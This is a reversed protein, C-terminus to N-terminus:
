AFSNEINLRYSRLVAKSKDTVWNQEPRGNVDELNHNDNPPDVQEVSKVSGPEKVQDVHEVVDESEEEEDDITHWSDKKERQEIAVAIEARRKERFEKWYAEDADLMKVLADVMTKRLEPSLSKGFVDPDWGVSSHARASGECAALRGLETWVLGLFRDITKRLEMLIMGAQDAIFSPLDDSASIRLRLWDNLKLIHEKPSELTLSRSFLMAMLPTVMSTHELWITGEDAETPIQKWMYAVLRGPSRYKRRLRGERRKGVDNVSHRSIMGFELRSDTSWHTKRGKPADEGRWAALETSVTNMLLAKVLVMNNGNSNLFEPLDDFLTNGPQPAPAFGIQALIEHIHTSTVMMDLYSRHRICKTEQLKRMLSFDGAQYAAHYERFAEILPVFDSESDSSYKQRIEKIQQASLEPDHILPAHQPHCAVILMPEICGFFSGLLVAKGLAPHIGFQSLLRGLGTIERSETLAGLSQLSKIASQVAESSPPDITELLFEEVDVHQPYAKLQLAVEVLDAVKIKPRNMPTFSEHRAKSFLAYYHGNRVRGARGRRQISSTKSIWAFPLSRTLTSPDFLSNRAKGADVVYVVEPLTISTEAINTALIIRCCGWPVEKFVNDNTDRRQSHLQFLKFRKGDKFDLGKSAFRGDTLLECVADIDAIGPLFVLIDGKPRSHAIHAIVAATLGVYQGSESSSDNTPVSSSLLRHTLTTAPISAASGAHKGAFEMENQIYRTSSIIKDKGQLLPQLTPYLESAQSMESLIEPLYHTEVNAGSGEVEFSEARLATGEGKPEKFYDLFRTPDISASMLIIKPFTLGAAKRTRVATRLISLVLDIQVDREHVEDVIIHSHAQLTTHQDAILRNLLIGTTCYTINGRLAPLCNENRIHYGISLRLPEAREEAVRRAVSTAAIRRPQTCLVSTCPGQGSLIGHDLIIQPVQTSKGSGTKALVVVVDCDTILSLLKRQITKAMLPLQQRKRSIEGMELGQRANEFASKMEAALADNQALPNFPMTKPQTLPAFPKLVVEDFTLGQKQALTMM